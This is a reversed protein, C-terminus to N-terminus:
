IRGARALRKLKRYLGRGTHTALRRPVGKKVKEFKNTDRNFEWVPESGEPAYVVFRKARTFDSM